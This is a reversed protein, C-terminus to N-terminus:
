WQAKIPFSPCMASTGSIFGDISVAVDYIVSPM